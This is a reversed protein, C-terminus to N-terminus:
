EKPEVKKYKEQVLQLYVNYGSLTVDNPIVFGVHYSINALIQELTPMVSKDGSENIKTLEKTVMTIRTILNDSRKIAAQLSDEYATKGSTDIKYGKTKLYIIVDDDIVFALKILCAKVTNYDAILLGYSQELNFYYDYDFSGTANGNDKIIKEWQFLCEERTAKGERSLWFVNGTKAVDLYLRLTITDYDWFTKVEKPKKAQKRRVKGLISM